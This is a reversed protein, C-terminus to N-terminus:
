LKRIRPFSSTCSETLMENTSSSHVTYFTRLSKNVSFNSNSKNVAFSFHQQNSRSTQSIALNGASACPNEPPLFNPDYLRATCVEKSLVHAPKKLNTTGSRESRLSSGCWLNWLAWTAFCFLSYLRELLSDLSQPAIDCTVRFLFIFGLM